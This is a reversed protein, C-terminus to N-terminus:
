IPAGRVALAASGTLWWNVPQGSTRQCLERLADRWPIPDLRAAQRLVPEIYRAFNQWAQELHPAGVPYSRRWEPGTHEYGMLVRRAAEALEPGIEGVAFWVTGEDPWRRTALASM